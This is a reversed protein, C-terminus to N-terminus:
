LMMFGMIHERFKKNVRIINVESKELDAANLYATRRGHRTYIVFSIYGVKGIKSTKLDAYGSMNSKTPITEMLTNTTDYLQIEIKSHRIPKEKEDNYVFQFDFKNLQEALIQEEKSFTTNWVICSSEARLAITKELNLVTNKIILVNKDTYLSHDITIKGFEDTKLTTLLQTGYYVEM